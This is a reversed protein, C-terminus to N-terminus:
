ALCVWIDLFTGLWFIFTFIFAARVCRNKSFLTQSDLLMKKKAKSYIHVVYVIIHVDKCPHMILRHTMNQVHKFFVWM